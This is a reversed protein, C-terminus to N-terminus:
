MMVHSRCHYSYCQSGNDTHATHANNYICMTTHPSHICVLQTFPRTPPIYVYSNHSCGHPPFTYMLTTHVTTHPSHIFLCCGSPMQVCDWLHRHQVTTGSLRCGTTASTLGARVVCGTCCHLCLQAAEQRQPPGHMSQARPCHCWRCFLKIKDFM